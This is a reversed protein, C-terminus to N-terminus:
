SFSYFTTVKVESTEGLDNSIFSALKRYIFMKKSRFIAWKSGKRENQM